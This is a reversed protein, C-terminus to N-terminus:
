LDNGVNSHRREFALLRAKTAAGGRASFGGLAGGSRVVRHCPVIIPVPNKAMAAGVARAAGPRGTRRAIEGYSATGGYPIRAVERYAAREFATAGALDVPIDLARRRGAFYDAIMKMAPHVGKTEPAGLEHALEARSAGDPIILRALGRDTAGIGCWGWATTFVHARTATTKRKM